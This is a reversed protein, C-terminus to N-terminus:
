HDTLPFTGWWTLYGTGPHAPILYSTNIYIHDRTYSKIIIFLTCLRLGIPYDLILPAPTFSTTDLSVEDNMTICSVSTWKPLGSMMMTLWTLAHAVNPTKRSGIEYDTRRRSDLVKDTWAIHLHGLHFGVPWRFLRCGKRWCLTDREAITLQLPDAKYM